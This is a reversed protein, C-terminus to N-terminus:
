SWSLFLLSLPPAPHISIYTSTQGLLMKTVTHHRSDCKGWLVCERMSWKVVHSTFHRLHCCKTRHFPSHFRTEQTYSLYPKFCRVTEQRPESQRGIWLGVETSWLRHNFKNPSKVILWHSFLFFAAATFFFSFLFRCWHLVLLFIFFFFFFYNYYIFLQVLPLLAAKVSFFM